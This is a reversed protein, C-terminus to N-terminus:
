SILCAVNDRRIRKLELAMTAIFTELGDKDITYVKTQKDTMDRWELHMKIM